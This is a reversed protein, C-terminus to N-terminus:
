AMGGEKALKAGAEGMSCVLRLLEPSTDLLRVAYRIDDREEVLRAERSMPRSDRGTLLYEMSVGLLTAIVYADELKPLRNESRQDAIRQYVLKGEKCIDRMTMDERAIDVNRWFEFADM